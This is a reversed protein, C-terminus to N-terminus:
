PALLTEHLECQNRSFMIRRSTAIPGLAFFDHSRESLRSVKLESQLPGKLDQLSQLASSVAAHSPVSKM